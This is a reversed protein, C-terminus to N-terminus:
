HRHASRKKACTRKSAGKHGKASRSSACRTRAAAFKGSAFSGVNGGADVAAVRWYLAARRQAATFKFPPAWSTGDTSHSELVHAFSDSASLQVQYRKATPNPSWSIVQRVGSRIGRAGSPANLTRTFPQLPESYGGAVTQGPTAGPFDARVQWHWVGLGYWEIPTAATAALSFTSSTGNVKSVHLEYGVAGQVASWKLVPIAEGGSANGPSSSPRPLTRVFRQVPSWNLGQGGWDTARVRWFLPVGTPYTTSSTYSIAYTTADELPKAFSEDQAVQIRYSRANEAATWYFVPQTSVAEENGPRLATPPVSSKNFAQPGNDRPVDDFVGTGNADTSPIVAWYYSTTEDSLPAENTLRPAYAPVNSYGVDAVETFGADRAVVVYYGQAGPVRDWAFYPTRPACGGCNGLGSGWQAGIYAGAPTVFPAKATGPAPPPAYAFAANGTGNVQSWNSVVQGSQADDDSRALVRVCYENGPTLASSTEPLPWATPGIRKASGLPTWSTTATEAQYRSTDTVVSWDCGLGQHPAVQVEYHSAGPVPDWTVIPTDISPVGNLANGNADRVTLNPVTPEVSDFAKTFSQGESWVGAHGKADIPRVRWYYRNNALVKTPALSTGVTTGTCCWRSGSAFSASSNVEAEYRAAGPVPAWNFQPDLVRPDSNLDKLETTTAGPWTYTFSAVPSRHGLHGEADIPTVAWFYTGSDLPASPTYVTAQTTIPATKTGIVPNALSSDTAVTLQYKAAHSVNAWSFVLPQAPWYVTTNTPEGLQPADTWEKHLKRAGSWPGAGKAGAVARVRWYYTGDPVAVDLTAATNPTEVTGKGTRGKVTSRFRKDASIQFQYATAKAVPAWAFTPLVQPFASNRPTQLAPAHLKVSGKAKVTHKRAAQSARPQQAQSAPVGLSALAFAAVLLGRGRVLARRKSCSEDSRTPSTRAM